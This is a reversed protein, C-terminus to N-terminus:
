KIIMLKKIVSGKESSIRVLYTGAPYQSVTVQIKREKVKSLSWVTNGNIDVIAVDPAVVPALSLDITVIDRSPNPYLQVEDQDILDDDIATVVAGEGLVNLSETGANSSISIQGNYTKGETPSFTVKVEESAGASLSVTSKDVSFGEPVQINTVELGDGDGNNTITFTLESSMGIDTQNFSLDGEVKLNPEAVNSIEITFSNEISLGGGDTTSVRVTYAGKAERDFTQATVLQNGNIIFASNDGDGEGSVFAYTHSDAADQDTTSLNGVLTGADENELVSLNSLAVASPAENVDQVSVTFNQTFNLGDADTTKIRVSYATKTEYNFASKNVLNGGSIEFLANDTDGSGAVFSYTHSDGNDPDTTTLAGIVTGSAKNEEISSASLVIAEPSENINTVTVVFAKEISAGSGDTSKM